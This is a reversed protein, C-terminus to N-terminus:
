DNTFQFLFHILFAFIWKRGAFPCNLGVFSNVKSLVHWNVELIRIAEVDSEKGHQISESHWDHEWHCCDDKLVLTESFSNLHGVVVSLWWCHVVGQTVGHQGDHLVSWQHKEEVTEPQHIVSLKEIVNPMVFILDSFVHPGIVQWTVSYAM